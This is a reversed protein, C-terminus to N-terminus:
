DLLHKTKLFDHMSRELLFQQNIMSPCRGTLTIIAGSNDGRTLMNCLLNYRFSLSRGAKKGKTEFWYLIILITSDNESYQIKSLTFNRNEDIAITTSGPIVHISKSFDANIRNNFTQSSYFDKKLELKFGNPDTFSYLQAPLGSQATQNNNCPTIHSVGFSLFLFLAPAAFNSLNFKAPTKKDVKVTQLSDSKRLLLACLYLLVLAVPYIVPALFVNVPGHIHERVTDYNWYGLLAIRISNLAVSILISLIIFLFRSRNREFILFAAPISLTLISLLQNIGSCWANIDLDIAPLHLENGYRTVEKGCCKLIFEATVSGVKQLPPQVQPLLAPAIIIIFLFYCAPWILVGARKKGEVLYLIGCLMVFPAIEILFTSLTLRALAALFLGSFSFLFGWIISPERTISSIRKLSSTIIVIVFPIVLYKWKGESNWGSFLVIFHERFALIFLMLLVSYGAYPIKEPTKM